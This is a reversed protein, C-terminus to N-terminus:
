KKVENIILWYIGIEKVADAFQQFDVPKVVYSNAGLDYAKKIDENERSSTIIIVPIHKLSSDKKIEALVDLGNIKPLKLDLLIITPTKRIDRKAYKGKAFLFEMAEEGDEVWKIENALNYKKLARITLTADEELDEVLLIEPAKEKMEM